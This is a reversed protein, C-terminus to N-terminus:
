GALRESRAMDGDGQHDKRRLGDERKRQKRRERQRRRHDRDDEAGARFSGGGKASRGFVGSGLGLEAEVLYHVMDHPIYGDYGAAPDMWRSAQGPLEMIVAYRREGTRKFTVDM